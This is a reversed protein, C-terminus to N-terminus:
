IRRANESLAEAATATIATNIDAAAEREAFLLAHRRDSDPDATKTSVTRDTAVDVNIVGTNGNSRTIPNVPDQSLTDSTTTSITCEIHTTLNIPRIGFVGPAVGVQANNGPDTTM